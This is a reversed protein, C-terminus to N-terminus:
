KIVKIHSEEILCLSLHLINLSSKEICCIHIAVTLSQFPFVYAIFIDCFHASYELAESAM